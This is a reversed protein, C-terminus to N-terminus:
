FSMYSISPWSSIGSHENQEKSGRMPAGTLPWPSGAHHLM